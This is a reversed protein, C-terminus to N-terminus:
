FIKQYYESGVKKFISNHVKKPFKEDNFDKDLYLNVSRYGDEIDINEILNLIRMKLYHEIDIIMKFYLLRVRHDIISLDKLYSFDLDISKRHGLQLALATGGVLRTQELVPLRQLKKLLELTSSEVTELYLM